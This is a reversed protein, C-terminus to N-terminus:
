LQKIYYSLVTKRKIGNRTRLNILETKGTTAYLVGPYLRSLRLADRSSTLSTGTVMLKSVGTSYSVSSYVNPRSQNNYYLKTLLFECVNFNTKYEGADKARQIVADLDRSFKKNTLNAGVDVIIYNNLKKMLGKGNTEESSIDGASM